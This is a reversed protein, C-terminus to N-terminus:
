VRVRDMRSLLQKIYHRKDNISKINQMHKRKGYHAMKRKFKEGPYKPVRRTMKSLDEMTPRRIPNDSIPTHMPKTPMVINMENNPIFGSGEMTNKQQEYNSPSGWSIRNRGFIPPGWTSRNTGLMTKKIGNGYMQITDGSSNMGSGLLGAGKKANKSYIVTRSDGAYYDPNGLYPENKQYQINAIPLLKEPLGQVYLPDNKIEFYEGQITQNNTTIPSYYGILDCM